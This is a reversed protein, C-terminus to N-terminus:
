VLHAWKKIFELLFALSFFLLSLFSDMGECCKMAVQLFHFPLFLQFNEASDRLHDNSRWLGHQGYFLMLHGHTASEYRRLGDCCSVANLKPHNEL